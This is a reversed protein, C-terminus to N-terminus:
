EIRNHLDDFYEEFPRQENALSRAIIPVASLAFLGIVLNWLQLPLFLLTILLNGGVGVVVAIWNHYKILNKGAKTFQLFWAWVSGWILGLLMALFTRQKEM